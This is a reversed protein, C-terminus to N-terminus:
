RLFIKARRSKPAKEKNQNLTNRLVDVLNPPVIKGLSTNALM